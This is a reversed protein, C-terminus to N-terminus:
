RQEYDEWLPQATARDNLPYAGRVDDCWGLSIPTARLGGAGAAALRAGYEEHLARVIDGLQHAAFALGTMQENTLQVTKCGDWGSPADLRNVLSELVIAAARADRVKSELDRYADALAGDTTPDAM